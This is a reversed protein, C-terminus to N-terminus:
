NQFGAYGAEALETAWRSRGRPGRNRDGFSSSKWNQRSEPCVSIPNQRADSFTRPESWDLFRRATGGIVV